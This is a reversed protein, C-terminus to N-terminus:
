PGDVTLTNSDAYHVGHCTLCQVNNLDDFQLDNSANGDAGPDGQPVGNGDLPAARDYNKSNANLGVGVPHSKLNGDWSGAGGGGVLDNDHTMVWERHCDRCFKEVSNIDGRDLTARLFPWSAYFEWRDGIQFASGAGGTFALTAGSGPDFDIPSTDATLCTATNGPACNTPFWTTGNDKSYRFLAATDSGNQTIDVLYWVGSSGTFTGGSAVDGSGGGDAVKAAASIRPTGGRAQEATHQNHCTSCVVNGDMLRLIMESDEPEQAGYSPNTPNADFGHSTGGIGPQAKDSSGIPLGNSTHCSLCLNTNGTHPNLGGGLANHTVHCNSTCDTNEVAGVWHPPDAARGPWSLALITVLVAAGPLFTSRRAIRSSEAHSM